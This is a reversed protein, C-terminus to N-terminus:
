ERRHKGRRDTKEHNTGPLEGRHKLSAQQDRGSLRRESRPLGFEQQGASAGSSSLHRGEGSTGNRGFIEAFVADLIGGLYTELVALEASTIPYDEPLNETVVVWDDDHRTHKHPSSRQSAQSRHKSIAVLCSTARIAALLSNVHRGPVSTAATGNAAINDASLPPSPNKQRM